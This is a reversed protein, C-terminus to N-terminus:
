ICYSMSVLLTYRVNKLKYEVSLKFSRTNSANM